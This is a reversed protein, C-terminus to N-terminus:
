GREITSYLNSGGEKEIIYEAGIVSAMHERAVEGDTDKIFIIVQKAIAPMAECIKKIRTKDFASLPADMVLPYGDTEIYFSDEESMKKEAVAKEKAIAIIATIFAFIIAYSQATNKELEDDIKIQNVTSVRIDYKDSVTISINGDYIVSFIDNIKKELSLRTEKEKNGYETRCIEYLKDAYAKYLMVKRTNETVIILEDIDKRKKDIERNISNHKAETEYLEKGCIKLNRKVDELNRKAIEGRNTDSIQEFIESAEQSKSDIMDDLERITSIVSNFSEFFTSGGKEMAKTYTKIDSVQMSISKPPVYNLLENVRDFFETGVDLKCGCLCERRDLLHVITARSLKPISKDYAEIGSIESLLAAALPTTIFNYADRDALPFLNKNIVTQRRTEYSKIECLLKNYRDKLEMNRSESMIINRLEDDRKECQEIARKLEEARKELKARECRLAEIEKECRMVKMDSMSDSFIKKELRGIVTASSNEKKLHELLNQTATLGMLGQVADKFERSKGGEIEKSMEDIREGDFFFFKSLEKPLMKKIIYARQNEPLFEFSGNERKFCIRLESQKEYIKKDTKDHQQTRKIIYSHGDYEAELTVSVTVSDGSAMQQRVGRNIVEKVNFATEGYLVWQIAQALTTKGAGNEGMVITVNRTRDEAFIIESKRFQRFNLLELRKILM